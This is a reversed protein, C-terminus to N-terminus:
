SPLWNAVWDDQSMAPGWSEEMGRTRNGWRDYGDSWLMPVKDTTLEWSAGEELRLVGGDLIWIHNPLLAMKEHHYMHRVHRHNTECTFWFQDDDKLATRTVFVTLVTNNWSKDISSSTPERSRYRSRAAQHMFRAVNFIMTSNVPQLTGLKPLRQLIAQIDYKELDELANRERPIHRILCELVKCHRIKSGDKGLEIIKTQSEQIFERVLREVIAKSESRVLKSTRLIATPLHRTVLIAVFDDISVKTHKIQRPLHEYVLLRIETPLRLFPFPKFEPTTMEASSYAVV